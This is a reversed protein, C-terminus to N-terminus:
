DLGSKITGNYKRALKTSKNNGHGQALIGPHEGNFLKSSDSDINRNGYLEYSKNIQRMKNTVKNGGDYGYDDDMYEGDLYDDNIYSPVKAKDFANEKIVEIIDPNFVCISEVDWWYLGDGNNVNRLEKVARETVFIGDYHKYLYNFDIIKKLSNHYYKLATDRAMEYSCKFRRQITQIMDEIDEYKSINDLDEQTDIIYINSGKKIKFLVHEDLKDTHFNERNCWEGWGNLSDIPSGWFGHQPKNVDDRMFPPIFKDKSFENTGYSVFTIDYINKHNGGSMIKRIAETVMQRIDNESIQIKAM